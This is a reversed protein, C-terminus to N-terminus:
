KNIKDTSSESKELEMKYMRNVQFQGDIFVKDRLKFGDAENVLLLIWDPKCIIKVTSTGEQNLIELIEGKLSFNDTNPDPM